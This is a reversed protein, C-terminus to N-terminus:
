ALIVHFLDLYHPHKENLLKMFSIRERFWLSVCLASPLDISRATAVLKIEFLVYLSIHFVRM